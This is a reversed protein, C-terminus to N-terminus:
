DVLSHIITLQRMQQTSPDVFRIELKIARLPKRNDVAQWILENDFLQQRTNTPWTVPPSSASTTKLDGNSDTASICQYYFPAIGPVSVNNPLVVDGVSYPTNAVWPQASPSPYGPVNKQPFYPPQLDPFGDGNSDLQPHWTDFVLNGGWSIPGYTSDIPGYSSNFQASSSYDSANAGGMNVFQGVSEDLLQVDFAHVNSLLLDEGRRAGGRWATVTGEPFSYSTPNGPFSPDMQNGAGSFSQPYQFGGHSCEELTYRGIFTPTGGGFNLFEKPRGSFSDHGFRLAPNGLSGAPLGDNKLSESGSLAAGNATYYASYDFDNWFSVADGSNLFFKYGPSSTTTFLDAVPGAGGTTDPQTKGVKPDRVLLQRRYLNGNRVFYSIEAATSTGTGNPVLQSDDRDPQCPYQLLASSNNPPLTMAKGFFLPEPLKESSNTSDIRITYQLVDDLANKPDNESIYFYGDRGPGTTTEGPYFPMVTKFTRHDLDNKIITQLMRARQDNEALGRQKSISNGAMQFIQAFMTMMILVLTVAVLMEVLTFGQRSLSTLVSKRHPLPSSQMITFRKM